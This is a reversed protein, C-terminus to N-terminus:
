NAPVQWARPPSNDNFTPRWTAAVRRTSSYAAGAPPVYPTPAPTPAPEEYAPSEVVPTAPVSSGSLSANDFNLYQEPQFGFDNVPMGHPDVTFLAAFHSPNDLPSFLQSGAPDQFSFGEFNFENYDLIGEGNTEYQGYAVEIETNGAAHDIDFNHLQYVSPDGTSSLLTSLADEGFEGGFAWQNLQEASQLPIDFSALNDNSSSSGAIPAETPNWANLDQPVAAYANNYDVQSVTPAVPPVLAQVTGGTEDHPNFPAPPPAYYNSGNMTPIEQSSPLPQSLPTFPSPTQDEPSPAASFPPTPGGPGFQAYTDYNTACPHPVPPAASAYTSPGATPLGAAHRGGARKALREDEKQQRREERIREKQDKTKPQFRYDPFRIKHAVKALEAQHDWYARTAASESKWLRSVLRSVDAQPMREGKNRTIDENIEKMKASRYLIWANPPRPPQIPPIPPRSSETRTPGAM